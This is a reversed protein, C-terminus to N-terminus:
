AGAPIDSRAAIIPKGGNIIDGRVGNVHRVASLQFRMPGRCGTEVIWAVGVFFHVRTMWWIDVIELHPFSQEM